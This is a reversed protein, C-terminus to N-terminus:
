KKTNKEKLLIVRSAKDCDAYSFNKIKKLLNKSFDVVDAYYPMNEKKLRLMSYGLYMYGKIEIFDPKCIEVLKKLESINKEKDNIGKILTYRLVKRCKASRAIKLFKLFREWADKYLPRKLKFYDQKNTATISLYLNTPLASEKILKKLADPEQCNSVLFISKASYKTKLLKILESLKPYLLPDGVLSIAFHIPRLAKEIRKRDLRKDGFFGMLLKKREEILNKIIEDPEAFERSEIKLMNANTVLLEKPRWCHVCNEQCFIFPTFQMCQLCSIGYFKQKYCFGENRIARKTWLCIQVAANKYVGYQKKVLSRELSNRSNEKEGIEQVNFEGSM